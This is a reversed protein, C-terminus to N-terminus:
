HLPQARPQEAVLVELPKRREGEDPVCIAFGVNQTVCSGVPIVVEDRPEAGRQANPVHREVRVARRELQEARQVDLVVVRAEADDVALPRGIVAAALRCDVAGLASCDVGEAVVHADALGGVELSPGM